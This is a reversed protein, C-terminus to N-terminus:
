SRQPLSHPRRVEVEALVKEWFRSARAESQNRSIMEEVYSRPLILKFGHYRDALGQALTAMRQRRDWERSGRPLEAVRARCGEALDQYVYPLRGFHNIATQATAPQRVPLRALLYAHEEPTFNPPGLARSSRRTTTSQRRPIDSDGTTSPRATTLPPQQQQPNHQPAPAHSPNLEYMQAYVFYDVRATLPPAVRRDARVASALPLISVIIFLSEGRQRAVDAATRGRMDGWARDDRNSEDGSRGSGRAQDTDRHGSPSAMKKVVSLLAVYAFWCILSIKDKARRASARALGYGRM